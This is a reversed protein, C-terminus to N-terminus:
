FFLSRDDNTGARAFFARVACGCVHHDGASGFLHDVRGAAKMTPSPEVQGGSMPRNGTKVNVWERFRIMGRLAISSEIVGFALRQIALCEAMSEVLGM